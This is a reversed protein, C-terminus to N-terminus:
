YKLADGSCANWVKLMEAPIEGNPCAGGTDSLYTWSGNATGTFADPGDQYNVGEAESIGAPSELLAIAYTKTGCKGVWSKDGVTAKPSRLGRDAALLAAKVDATLAVSVCANDVPKVTTTAPKATTSSPVSATTSTTTEATKAANDSSDGCGALGLSAIGSCAVGLLLSTLRNRM